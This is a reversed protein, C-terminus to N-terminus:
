CPKILYKILILRQTTTLGKSQKVLTKTALESLLERQKAKAKNIEEVQAMIANLDEQASKVAEMLVIFALAEIDGGALEGLTSYMNPNAGELINSITQKAKM